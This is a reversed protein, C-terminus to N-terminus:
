PRPPPEGPDPNTPPDIGNENEDILPTFLTMHRLLSGSPGGPYPTDYVVLDAAGSTLEVHDFAIRRISATRIGFRIADRARDYLNLRRLHVELFFMWRKRPRQGGSATPHLRYYAVARGLRWPRTPHSLWVNAQEDVRIAQLGSEDFRTNLKDLLDRTDPTTVLLGM